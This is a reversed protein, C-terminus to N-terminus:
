VVAEGLTVEVGWDQDVAFEEIAVPLEPFAVGATLRKVVEVYKEFAVLDLCDSDHSDDFRKAWARAEDVLQGHRAFADDPVLRGIMKRPTRDAVEVHGIPRGEYTVTLRKM